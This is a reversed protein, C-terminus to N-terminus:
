TETIGFIDNMKKMGVPHQIGGSTNVKIFHLTAERMVFMKRRHTAEEQFTIFFVAAM